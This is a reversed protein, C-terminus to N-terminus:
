VAPRVRRPTFAIQSKMWASRAAAVAAGDGPQRALAVCWPGSGVRARGAHDCLIGGPLLVDRYRQELRRGDVLRLPFISTALETAM